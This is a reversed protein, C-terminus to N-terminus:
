TFRLHLASMRGPPLRYRRYGLPAAEPRGELEVREQAALLLDCACGIPLTVSILRDGRKGSTNFHVPGKVTHTVLQFDQLDGLQPQMEARSFGAQLPRLGVLCSHAVSLPAAASHSWQHWSDPKADWFEQLTNNLIVSPLTAWRTRLDRIVVDIREGKSLAKLRWIANAPYSFGMEKPCTALAEVSAAIDREPCQNFLVAMALALDSFSPQGDENIWPLNDTFIRHEECWFRDVTNGILYQSIKRLRLAHEQYGFIDCTPALALKFSGAVYLNFACQKNRQSGPKYADWDMHVHPIGLETVPLLGDGDRNILSILYNAFRLIRPFSERLSDLDGTLWYHDWAVFIFQLDVDLLPGFKTLDLQRQSMRVLRDVGPWVDLFYGEKTAGQSWTNLFRASLRSDGFVLISLPIQHACDGAYQQRERGNGDAFQDTASNKLTNISADFLRQLAADNSRAIPRSQWPFMRRRVGLSHVVIAGSGQIHLQMWRLSEFDFSEFTNEGERCIFQTWGYNTTTYLFAPGGVQHAEQTILDVITGAPAVISFYPFGVIQESFEFTLLAGRDPHLDVQWGGGDLAAVTQSRDATFCDPGRNEFYEISPRTWNISLSEALRKVPVLQENLLPIARRRLQSYSPAEELENLYDEYNTSIAPQNPSGDLTMARLWDATVLFEPGSWRAPYHRADFREQLARLYWRKYQGPQWARCLHAQWTEDSVLIQRTGDPFELELWFLFGPRGVSWTGDGHGYYLVTAGIVNSGSTLVHSLDVPDAETWRPDCPAPGWQVRNGNARLEYRSDGVIWGTARAPKEKLILERRFLVFTNPLTRESPYWIWRAPALDPLKRNNTETIASEAHLDLQEINKAGASKSSSAALANNQDKVLTAAGALSSLKLFRRRKV